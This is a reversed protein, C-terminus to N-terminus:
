WGYTKRCKKPNKMQIQLYKRSLNMLVNKFHSLTLRNWIKRTVRIQGRASSVCSGMPLYAPSKWLSKKSTLWPQTSKEIKKIKKWELGYIRAEVSARRWLDNLPQCCSEFSTVVFPWFYSSLFSTLDLSTSYPTLRSNAAYHPKQGRLPPINCGPWFM